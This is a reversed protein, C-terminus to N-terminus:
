SKLFRSGPKTVSISKLSEPLENPKYVPIKIDILSIIPIDQIHTLDPDRKILCAEAVIKAGYPKICEYTELSSKGTTIVDEVVLIHQNKNINFDRRFTFTGNTRECFITEKNLQRAIEYGIIIGGVAPSVIMDIENVDIENRIKHILEQCLTRAIHPQSFIQACQVYYESHLGSSLVFHGHLLAKYQKLTKIIDDNDNLKKM